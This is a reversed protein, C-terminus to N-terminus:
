RLGLAAKRERLSRIKQKAEDLERLLSLASDFNVSARFRDIAKNIEEREFRARESNAPSVDPHSRAFAIVSALKNLDSTLLAAKEALHAFEEEAEQYELLLMAKQNRKEDETM